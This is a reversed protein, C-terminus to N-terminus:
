SRSRASVRLIAYIFPQLFPMLPKKKDAFQVYTVLLELASLRLDAMDDQMAQFSSLFILNPTSNRHM